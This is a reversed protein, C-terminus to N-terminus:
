VFMKQQLSHKLLQLQECKRQHLSILNDLDSFFEGIKEQENIDPYPIELNSVQELSLNPQAGVTPNKKVFDSVTRGKLVTVVYSIDGESMRLIALAQNTNAPLLEKNVVTTRGLTGAISFLIDNEKLQSRKLYGEHEEISIKTCETIEGSSADINEVKIFNIEGNGSKDKPTTGKTILSTIDSLKRQEWEDTFGPFRIEPKSAGQQPFMKQLMSAKLSKYSDTKKAEIEIYSDLTTFLEAIKKQEPISPIFTKMLLFDRPKLTMLKIVTGELYKLSEQIFSPRKVLYEMFAPEQDTSFIAYIPSVGGRKLKNRHIAGFKLNAPNYIIDDVETVAFKKTKIDKILFDRKNTKKDEPNIIGEAITFALQPYEESIVCSEKRETFIENLRKKHWEETFEPFRIRPTKSQNM